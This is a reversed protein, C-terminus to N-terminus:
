LLFPIVYLRRFVIKDRVTYAIFVCDMIKDWRPRPYFRPANRGGSLGGRAKRVISRRGRQAKQEKRVLLYSGRRAGRESKNM